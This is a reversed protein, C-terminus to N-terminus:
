GRRAAPAQASGSSPKNVAATPVPKRDVRIENGVHRGLQRPSVFVRDPNKEYPQMKHFDMYLFEGRAPWDIRVSHPVLVAANRVWKYNGLRAVATERGAPSLFVVSRILYPARRDIHIRKYPYVPGGNDSALFTLQYYDRMVEFLPGHQPDAHTPLNSIGLVEVLQDPRIPLQAAAEPDLEAHRGWWYIDENVRKWVWFEDGNSGVQMVTEGLTHELKMALDRPKRFLLNVTGNFPEPKGDPKIRRAEVEGHGEIVFDIKASNDNVRKVVTEISEEPGVPGAANGIPPLHSCGLTSGLAFELCAIAPWRLGKHRLPTPKMQPRKETLHCKHM